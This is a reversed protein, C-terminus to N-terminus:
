AGVTFELTRHNASLTFTQYDAEDAAYADAVLRAPFRRNANYSYDTADGATAFTVANAMLRLTKSRASLSFTQYDASIDLVVEFDSDGGIGGRRQGSQRDQRAENV